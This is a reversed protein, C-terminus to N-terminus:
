SIVAHYSYFNVEKVQSTIKFNKLSVPIMVYVKTIFLKGNLIEEIERLTIISAKM